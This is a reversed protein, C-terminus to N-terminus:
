SWSLKAHIALPFFFGFTVWYFLWHNFNLKEEVAIEM